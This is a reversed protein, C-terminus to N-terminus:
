KACQWAGVADIIEGATHVDEASVTFPKRMATALLIAARRRLEDRTPPKPKPAPDPKPKEIRKTRYVAHLLDSLPRAVEDATSVALAALRSAGRSCGTVVVLRGRDDVPLWENRTALAITDVTNNTASKVAVGYDVAVDPKTEALTKAINLLEEPVEDAPGAIRGDTSWIVWRNEPGLSPLGSSQRVVWNSTSNM